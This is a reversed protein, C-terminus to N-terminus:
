DRAVIKCGGWNLVNAANTLLCLYVLQKVTGFNIMLKQITNSESPYRTVRLVALYKIMKYEILCYDINM